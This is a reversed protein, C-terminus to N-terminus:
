IVFRTFHHRLTTQEKAKALAEDVNRAEIYLDEFRDCLIAQVFFTETTPQRRTKTSTM